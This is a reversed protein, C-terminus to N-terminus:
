KMSKLMGQPSVPLCAHQYAQIVDSQYPCQLSAYADTSLTEWETASNDTECSSSSTCQLLHLYSVDAGPNSDVESPWRFGPDIIALHIYITAAEIEVPPNVPISFTDGYEGRSSWFATGAYVRGESLTNSTSQGPPTSYISVNFSVPDGIRVVEDETTVYSISSEEEIIDTSNILSVNTSIKYIHRTDTYFRNNYRLVITNDSSRATNYQGNRVDETLCSQASASLLQYFADYDTCDTSAFPILNIIDYSTKDM